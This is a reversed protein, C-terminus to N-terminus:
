EACKKTAPSKRRRRRSGPQDEQRSHWQRSPRCRDGSEVPDAPRNPRKHAKEGWHTPHRLSQRQQSPFKWRLSSVEPVTPTSVEERLFGASHTLNSPDSQVPACCTFDKLVRHCPSPHPLLHAGRRPPM